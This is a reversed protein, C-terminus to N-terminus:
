TPQRARQAENVPRPDAVVRLQLTGRMSQDPSLAILNTSGIKIAYIYIVGPSVVRVDAITPDGVFVSEVAQDFRLIRGQAATVTLVQGAAADITPSQAHASRLFGATFGAGLALALSVLASAFLARLARRAARGSRDKRQSGEM